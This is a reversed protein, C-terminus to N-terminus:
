GSAAEIARRGKATVEVLVFRRDSTSHVRRALKQAELRDVITTMAGRSMGVREAVQSILMSDDSIALLALREAHTGNVYEGLNRLTDITRDHIM